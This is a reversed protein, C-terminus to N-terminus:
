GYDIDEPYLILLGSDFRDIGGVRYGSVAGFGSGYPDPYEVGLVDPDNITEWVVWAPGGPDFVKNRWASYVGTPRCTTLGTALSAPPQLVVEAGDVTHAAQFSISEIANPYDAM